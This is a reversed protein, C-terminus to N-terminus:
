TRRRLLDGVLGLTLLGGLVGLTTPVWSAVHTSTATIACALLSGAATLSLSLRRGARRMNAELGEIGRFQIQLKPGPRAGTVREVAEVMRMLRVKLKQTEYFIRRPDTSESIRTLLNRALFSGAVAFPDLDPDLEATALQMQALAKATLAMSAPLPVDHRIAIETVEQLIPGLQIDKLSSHRAKTMVEGVEQQFKTLDIDTRQDEGTLMLTVDTLFTVDEQWFALLLLMLNQRIQPGVEGIMGFDLFYIKDNWWMLNGPHPDAHFFGDVMIQRYYSELMQRAAEKRAPGEPADRIPGGQIEQMVLQRVTSFDSYVDPVDLRPYSQLVERMRDINAAEQRFDLERQLSESLHEVIANMDVVQKFAPRKATREAFLELLGLDRMIEERANPRQVKVVVRSGDALTARHVEAITGAALPKPDISEFVDEWPVGLEEEMVQVVQEETLPPVSDQLTSLEEIFEPPVLDPRTSLIQGLKCFTPGLEELAARLNRARARMPEEGPGPKGFLEKLGHKAMVAGIQTARGMLPPAEEVETDGVAGPRPVVRTVSAGKGDPAVTNVIVVTCRANHSIRNPVNGLLFEKRGSMGANGVVLVDAGAEEAARVISTAPDDDVVVRASGRTGALEEARKTLEAAAFSARTAEAQGAETGAANQPVLVQIVVLEAGYRDAMAAAWDEARQATESRDTAVAVRQM